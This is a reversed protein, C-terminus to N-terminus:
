RFGMRPGVRPLAHQQAGQGKLIHGWIRYVIVFGQKEIRVVHGITHTDGVRHEHVPGAGVGNRHPLALSSLQRLRSSTRGM